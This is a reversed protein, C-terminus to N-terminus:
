IPMSYDNEPRVNIMNQNSSYCIDETTTNDTHIQLLGTANGMVIVANSINNNELEEMNSELKDLAHRCFFLFLNLWKTSQLLTVQLWLYDCSAESLEDDEGKDEQNTEQHSSHHGDAPPCTWKIVSHFVSIFETLKLQWLYYIHKWIIFICYGCLWTLLINWM